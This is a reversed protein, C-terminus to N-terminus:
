FELKYLDEMLSFRGCTQTHFILTLNVDFPYWSKVLLIQVQNAEIM